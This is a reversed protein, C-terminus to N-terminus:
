SRSSAAVATTVAESFVAYNRIYDAESYFHSALALCVARPAFDTLDLWLMPPVHLGVAPNDLVVSTRTRGDDLWVTFRGALAILVRACERHAHGGRVAGDSLGYIYYVRRIDFPIHRSEEIFSLCGQKDPIRPLSLLRFSHDPPFAATLAALQDSISSM